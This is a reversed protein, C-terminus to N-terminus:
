MHKHPISNPEGRTALRKPGELQANLENCTDRSTIFSKSKNELDAM